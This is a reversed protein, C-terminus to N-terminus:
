LKFFDIAETMGQNTNSMDVAAEQTENCAKTVVQCAASVEEASAGLEESIAGLDSTTKSLEDKIENLKGSMDKIIEIEAISSEVSESLVSFKQQTTEIDEQEKNIVEFVKNSIEVTGNSLTVIDDIIQKIERASDASSDALARIEDAVVAFGRGAEGARAAEISANLSLLNTQAAISEIAQVASGIKEVAANTEAIKDSINKMAAVSENGSTYVSRMCESAEDNANKITHSEDFLNSVNSNLTDVDEGLEVAKEAIKQADEAVIQSTEAVEGIANNIQSVQNVNETTKDDVSKIAEALEQASNKVNGISANLANKLTKFADNMRDTEEIKSDVDCEVTVDGTSLRGIAGTIATLPKSVSIAAVVALISFLVIGVVLMVISTVVITNVDQLADSKDATVIAVYREHTGVYYAAYKDTGKYKYTVCEPAPHAGNALEAVVGKVAANEVPNGIKSEDPHALMIGAKDVFYVYASKLGLASVDNFNGTVNNVFFGGGVYGIPTGDDDKIAYYMSTVLKGSAPSTIIGVNYVGEGASLISDQLGKLSDGERLVKGIVAETPHTLVKTNWDAIYLGEWGDLNGFCQLTYAQAKAALAPDNPNKLYEKVIPAAGFDKLSTESVDFIYDFSLGIEDVVSLLSNKTSSDLKKSSLSVIAISLIVSLLIMPILTFLM